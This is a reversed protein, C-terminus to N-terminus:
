VAFTNFPKEDADPVTLATASEFPVNCLEFGSSDLFISPREKGGDISLVAARREVVSFSDFDRVLPSDYLSRVTTYM